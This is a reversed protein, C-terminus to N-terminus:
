IRERIKAALEAAEGDKYSVHDWTLQVSDGKYRPILHIHFHFVTQGAIEGNNQLINFGDCKLEEKMAKAVKAVVVFVKKATEEDMEFLNPFHKKPILVAHGKTAPSIDLIVKFDDDEYLSVSSIENNVIKCFICNDSM